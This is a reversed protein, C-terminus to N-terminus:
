GFNFRTTIGVQGTCTSQALAGVMADALKMVDAQSVGRIDVDMQLMLM